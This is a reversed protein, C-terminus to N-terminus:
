TPITFFCNKHFYIRFSKYYFTFLKIIFCILKLFHILLLLLSGAVVGTQHHLSKLTGDIRHSYATQPHPHPQQSATLSSSHLQSSNQIGFRILFM